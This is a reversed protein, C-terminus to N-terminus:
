VRGQGINMATDRLEALGLQRTYTSIYLAAETVGGFTEKVHQRM